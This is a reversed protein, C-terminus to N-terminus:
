LQLTRFESLCTYIHIHGREHKCIASYLVTLILIRNQYVCTECFYTFTSCVEFVAHDFAYCLNTLGARLTRNASVSHNVTFHIEFLHSLRTPPRGHRAFFFARFCLVAACTYRGGCHKLMLRRETRDCVFAVTRLCWDVTELARRKPDISNAPFRRRPSELSTKDPACARKAYM